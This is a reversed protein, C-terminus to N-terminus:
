GRTVAGGRNGARRAARWAASRSIRGEALVDGGETLVVPVRGGYVDLLEEDTDVDVERVDVALLMAPLRLRRFASDCLTCGQRTIFTLRRRLGM